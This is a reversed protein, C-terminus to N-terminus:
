YHHHLGGGRACRGGPGKSPPERRPRAAWKAQAHGVYLQSVCSRLFDSQPNVRPKRASVVALMQDKVTAM